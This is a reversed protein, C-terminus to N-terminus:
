PLRYFFFSFVTTKVCVKEMSEGLKKFSQELASTDLTVNPDRAASPFYEGRPADQGPPGPPGQPGMLGELGQEGRHGRRGRAIFPGLYKHNKYRDIEDLYHKRWKKWQAKSLRRGFIDWLTLLSSDKSDETGEELVPRPFIVSKNESEEDSSDTEEEESEDDDSDGDSSDDDGSDNPDPDEGGNGGGPIINERRPPERPEERTPQRNPVGKGQAPTSTKGGMPRRYTGTNTNDKPEMKNEKAQRKGDLDQLTKKKKDLEQDIRRLQEVREQIERDMTLDLPVDMEKQKEKLMKERIPCKRQNHADQECFTCFADPPKRPPKTTGTKQKGEPKEKMYRRLNESTYEPDEVEQHELEPCEAEDHGPEGCIVCNCPGWHERKCGYCYIDPQGHKMKRRPTGTRKMYKRYLEGSLDYPDTNWHAGDGPTEETLHIPYTPFKKEPTEMPRRYKPPITGQDEGLKLAEKKEEKRKVKERNKKRRSEAKEQEKKNKWEQYEGKIRQM